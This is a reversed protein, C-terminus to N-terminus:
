SYPACRITCISAFPLPSAASASSDAHAQSASVPSQSAILSEEGCARSVRFYSSGPQPECRILPNMGSFSFRCARFHRGRIRFPVTIQRRGGRRMFAAWAGLANSDGCHIRELRQFTELSPEFAWTMGLTGVLKHALISYLQRDSLWARPRHFFAGSFRAV